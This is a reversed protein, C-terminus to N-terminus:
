RLRGEGGDWPDAMAVLVTRDGEYSRRGHAVTMNDLVLVDGARWDFVVEEELYATRIAAVDREAIPAGDGYFTNFPLEDEAFSDLLADHTVADRASIPFFAAHNFWLAEGTVPHRRVAPRVLTTRLRDGPLWECSIARAACFEDVEARSDTQFAEQWTLGLGINYNRVYRVGVREFRERAEPPVRALVARTDALPTQGGAAAPTVCGFVITRPWELWYSGENHPDIPQSAPYTTSVYIGDGIEPRPTSRDRYELLGGPAIEAVVRGFAAADRVPLDRLLVARHRLLLERLWDRRTRLWGPADEVPASPAVAIPFARGAVAPAITAGRDDIAEVTRRRVQGPRPLNATM